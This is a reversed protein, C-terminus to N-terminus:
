HRRASGAVQSADHKHSVGVRQVILQSLHPGSFSEAALEGSLRGLRFFIHHRLGDQVLRHHHCIAM